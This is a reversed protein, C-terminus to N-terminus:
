GVSHRQRRSYSPSVKAELGGSGGELEKPSVKSPCYVAITKPKLIIVTTGAKTRLKHHKIHTTGM